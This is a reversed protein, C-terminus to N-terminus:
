DCGCSGTASYPPCNCGWGSLTLGVGPDTVIRSGDSVVHGTAVIEFNMTDHNFTLFYAIAGAPLGSMNPYEIAIPPDFTAGAPQLTWAFPPSAGDPMPMPIDDHHVQNLTMVAPDQPSPRTGDPRRMSGAKVTMRLGAIGECTLVIDRTGDYVRANNPNLRPLLVPAPLTNVANPVLVPEYHLEPFTGTEIPLGNLQNATLGDVYLDAPGSPVELFTFRGAPNSFTIFTQGAAKLTCRAGGVPNEANDLVLGTFTTPTDDRRVLGEAVFVAPDKANGAFDAEILNNGGAAGLLLEVSAHGTISTLVTVATQGNVRGGGRVVRFTVPVGAIGNCGDNVWARLREPALGGAEGKQFNGTGINIQQPPAPESSACFFVTGSIDRSSVAVRNNGCGADMGMRWWVRVRGEADTRLTLTQAGTGAAGATEFLRGDSRVVDLKVVKDPFPTGNERLVRVVLPEALLTGVRAMQGDGSEPIMRPGVAAIRRVSVERSISNGLADTATLQITNLGMQLPVNGREFTGNPGIGVIVNAPDGNVTVGLGLFGSLTDGVRGLVTVRESTIESGAVPYDVHFFPPESDQLISVPSPTSAKGESDVATVFLRNLRNPRLSVAAQFSGDNGTRTTVPTEGGVVTVDVGVGASGGVVVATDRTSAPLPALTALEININVRVEDSLTVGGLSDIARARLLYTGSPVNMWDFRFPASTDQGFSVGNVLLEVSTVSADPIVANVAVPISAPASFTANNLPNVVFVGAMVTDPVCPDTGARVEDRNSVGDGDFDQIGDLPNLPDLCEHQLEVTDTIGDNDQDFAGGVAYQRVRYFAGAGPVSDDSLMGTGATGLKMQIPEAIATVDVGRFLTYYSAVSSPYTVEVARNPAVTVTEIRFDQGVVGGSWGAMLGVVAAQVVRGALAKLMRGHMAREGMMGAESVEAVRGVRVEVM